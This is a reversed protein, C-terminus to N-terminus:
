MLLTECTGRKIHCIIFDCVITAQVHLTESVTTNNAALTKQESTEVKDEHRLWGMFQVVVNM